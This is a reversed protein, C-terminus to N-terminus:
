PCPPATPLWWGPPPNTSRGIIDRGLMLHGPQTPTCPVLGVSYLHGAIMAHYWHPQADPQATARNVSLAALLLLLLLAAGLSVAILRRANGSGISPQGAM